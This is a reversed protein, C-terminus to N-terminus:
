SIFNFLSLKSSQAYTQQAAQLGTQAQTIQTIVDTYKVGVADGSIRQQEVSNNTNLSEVTDLERMRGGLRTRGIQFQDFIGDSVGMQTSITAQATAPTGSYLDNIVKQVSAFYNNGSADTFLDKATVGQDIVRNNSIQVGRNTTSGAYTYYADIAASSGLAVGAAASSPVNAFPQTSETIGSLVYAGNSDKRNAVAALEQLQSQMNSAITQRDAASITSNNAQVMSEKISQMINSASSLSSDLQSFQDRVAGINRNFQDSLAVSSNAEMSITMALPDDSSKQVRLGSSLQTQLDFLKKQQEMLKTTTQQYMLSSSLRM